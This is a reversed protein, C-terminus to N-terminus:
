VDIRSDKNKYIAFVSVYIIWKVTKQHEKM